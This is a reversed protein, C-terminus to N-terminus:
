NSADSPASRPAAICKVIRNAVYCFDATDQGYNGGAIITTLSRMAPM